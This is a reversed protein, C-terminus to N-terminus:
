SEFLSSAYAQIKDVEFQAGTKQIIEEALFGGAKGATSCDFGKSLGALFGAAYMDGAGTSDKANVLRPSIPDIKGKNLVLSGKKGLKLGASRVWQSLQRSSNEYDDSDFLIELEAQNAFVIDVDNQIMKIFEDRNRSVAFPDAVDFVIQIKEEKAIQIASIIASKQSDTDWMYGTFYLYKAQSLQEKNIDAESFARCMGLHTNMTREGDPTVLIISSGTPGNGQILGSIVGYKEAQKVYIDGFTDKGIKGAILAPVGLGACALITNPASGGPHYDQKQNKFYTVIEAQRKEDVLHMIGKELNLAHLDKDEVSIAIDILPNGIGYILPIKQNM